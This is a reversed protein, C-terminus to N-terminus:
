SCASVSVENGSELCLVEKNNNKIVPILSIKFPAGYEPLYHANEKKIEGGALNDIRFPQLGINNEQYIQLYFNDNIIPYGKKNRMLFNIYNADYCVQSIEVDIDTACTLRGGLDETNTNVNKVYDKGFWMILSGAMVSLAVIIMTAILAGIGKKSKIFPTM